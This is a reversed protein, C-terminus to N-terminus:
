TKMRWLERTFQQLGKAGAIPTDFERAIFIEAGKVQRRLSALSAAQWQAALTCRACRGSDVLVRNVFVAGLPAQLERLAQLLRRTEYDPLPEPLTVVLLRCREGDRLISALERVNQALTAIEV